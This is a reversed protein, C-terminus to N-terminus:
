PVWLNMLMNVLTRWKGRGQQTVHAGIENGKIQNSCYYKTFLLIM